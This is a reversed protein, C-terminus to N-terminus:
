NLDIIPNRQEDNEAKGTIEAIWAATKEQKSASPSARSPPTWDSKYHEGTGFFTAPQKIYNPETKTAEVYKAYRIVGQIMEDDSAGAKKRAKWAKFADKKSAGPRSPYLSWAQEFSEPYQGTPLSASSSDESPFGSDTIPSPSDARSTGTLTTDQGTSTRHKDPAPITSGAEKQHPNQHKTFNTIQIYGTGDVEYRLIFDRKQLDDLLSDADCSDYPLVEAKIRKPRDELRGDRDAITWLGIFLLRGLPDIEALDDNTFFSPKINRARAM